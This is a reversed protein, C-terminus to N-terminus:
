CRDIADPDVGRETSGHIPGGGTDREIDVYCEQVRWLYCGGRRAESLEPAILNSYKRVVTIPGAVAVPSAPDSLHESAFGSLENKKGLPFMGAWNEARDTSARERDQFELGVPAHDIGPQRGVHVDVVADGGGESSHEDSGEPGESITLEALAKADRRFDGLPRDVSRTAETLPERV